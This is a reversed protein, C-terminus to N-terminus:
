FASHPKEKHAANHVFFAHVLQKDGCLSHLLFVAIARLEVDDARKFFGILRDHVFQLLGTYDLVM